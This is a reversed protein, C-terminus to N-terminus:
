RGRERSVISRGREVFLNAVLVHIRASALHRRLKSLM